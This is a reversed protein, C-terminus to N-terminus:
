VVAGGVLFWSIFSLVVSCPEAGHSPTHQSHPDKDEYILKFLLLVHLCYLYYVMILVICLGLLCLSLFVTFTEVFIVHSISVRILDQLNDAAVTPSASIALAADHVTTQSRQSLADLLQSEGASPRCKEALYIGDAYCPVKTHRSERIHLMQLIYEM